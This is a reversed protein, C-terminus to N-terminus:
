FRLKLSVSGSLAHGAPSRKVGPASIVQPQGPGGAVFNQVGAEIYSYQAGFRLETKDNPTFSGGAALSWTTSNIDHGTSVGQDWTASVTGALEENFRHAVGLNVTYGDRWFFNLSAPVGTANYGLVEFASWDTWKVGGYVLWGEAVGSQLKLEVSQPFEAKGTAFPFVVNGAAPGLLATTTGTADVNVASRYLLQARLAIETIEYAAGVRYGIGGDSLDLRASPNFGTAASAGFEQTFDLKQYFLGGLLSFKGPGASFAYACTAGMETITFDQSVTGILSTPDRRATTDRFDTSGGFPTTLTAACAAADTIQFKAAFNPIVYTQLPSGINVGGVIVDQTPVVVAAGMRTAVNGAEFLIDTDATGRSFGGATASGAVVSLALASVSIKLFTSTM